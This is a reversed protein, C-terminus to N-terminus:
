ALVAPVFDKIMRIAGAGDSYYDPVRAFVEYGQRRYRALLRDNDERIELRVGRYGRERATQEIAEFLRWAAGRGGHEAGVALSYFRVYPSGTKVFGLAYGAVPAEPTNQVAVLLINNGRAHRLFSRATMQLGGYHAPDFAANEIAVLAPVDEPRAPRIIYPPKREAAATETM